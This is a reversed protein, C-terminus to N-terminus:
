GLDDRMRGLTQELRDGYKPALKETSDSEGQHWLIGKLTGDILALKARRLATDYPTTNTAEDIAKPQWSSLPSGGVACPILGITIGPNVDAMAKAFALGPGVGAIEPKDFHLPEVAPIWQDNQDFTFVRRHATKDIEEVQGRGAMNSQGALLYLNFNEKPAPAASAVSPASLVYVVSALSVLLATTRTMARSTLMFAKAPTYEQTEIFMM